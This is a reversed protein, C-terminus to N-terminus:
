RFEDEDLPNLFHGRLNKQTTQWVRTPIERLIYIPPPLWCIPLAQSRSAQIQGRKWIELIIGVSIFASYECLPDYQGNYPEM